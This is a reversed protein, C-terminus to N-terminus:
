RLLLSEAAIVLDVIRDVLLGREFALNFRHIIFGLRGAGAGLLRWLDLFEPVEAASLEFRGGLPTSRLVRYRVGTSPFTESWQVSGACSVGIHKFLRLASLVDDVVLDDRITPRNGFRGEDTAASTPPLTPEESTGILKRSFTTRRIGVAANRLIVAFRRSPPRLVGVNCCQTVESETLQDLALEDNLRIPFPAILFPLPAILKSSLTEAGFFETLERWKRDFKEDSFVFSGNQDMMDYVLMWLITNADVRSAADRTGVLQDLHKAIAPESRLGEVCKDYCLISQLWEDTLLMSLPRRKTRQRFNGDPGREWKTDVDWSAPTGAPAAALKAVAGRLFDRLSQQTPSIGPAQEGM